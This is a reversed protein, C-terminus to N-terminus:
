IDRLIPNWFRAGVCWLHSRIRILPTSGPLIRRNQKPGPTMFKHFVPGPVPTV